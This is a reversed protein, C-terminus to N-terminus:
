SCNLTGDHKVATVENKCSLCEKTALISDAFILNAFYPSLNNKSKVPEIIKEGLNEMNKPSIENLTSSSYCQHSNRNHNGSSQTLFFRYNM